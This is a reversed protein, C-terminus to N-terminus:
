ILGTGAHLVLAAHVIDMKGELESLGQPVEPHEMLDGSTQTARLKERDCFLEYGAKILWARLRLCSTARRTNWRLSSPFSTRSGLLLWRRGLDRWLSPYRPDTRATPTQPHRTWSTCKELALAPGYQMPQTESVRFMPFSKEPHLAM